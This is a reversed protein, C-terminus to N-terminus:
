CEYKITEALAVAVSTVVASAESTLVVTAEAVVAVIVGHRAALLSLQLHGGAETAEVAVAAAANQFLSLFLSLYLSSFLLSLFGLPSDDDSTADSKFEGSARQIMEDTAENLGQYWQQQKFNPVIITNIIRKCIADPLVDEIGRGTVIRIKRTETAWLLLVGNNKDKAGVGWTKAIKMAYDYPDSEGTNKVIVISIETSTSDRYGRLKQELANREEPKLKMVFDSVM